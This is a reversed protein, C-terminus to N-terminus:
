APTTLSLPSPTPPVEPTHSPSPAPSHSPSPVSPSPPASSSPSSHGSSPTPVSSSSSSLTHTASAAPTVEATPALVATGTTAFVRAASSSSRQHIRVEEGAVASTGFGREGGEPGRVSGPLSQAHAISPSPGVTSALLIDDESEHPPYVVGWCLARKFVLLLDRLYPPLTPAAVPMLVTIAFLAHAVCRDRTHSKLVSLLSSFLPSSTVHHFLPASDVLVFLLVELAALVQWEDNRQLREALVAMCTDVNITVARKFLEKLLPVLGAGGTVLPPPPLAKARAEAKAENGSLAFLLDTVMNFVSRERVMLEPVFETLTRQVTAVDCLLADRIFGSWASFRAGEVDEYASVLRSLMCACADLSADSELRIDTHMLHSLVAVGYAPDTSALEEVDACEKEDLVGRELSRVLRAVMTLLDKKKGESVKEGRDKSGPGLSAM